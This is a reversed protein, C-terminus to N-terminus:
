RMESRYREISTFSFKKFLKAYTRDCPINYDRLLRKFTLPMDKYAEPVPTLEWPHVGLTAPLGKRNLMRIVISTILTGMHRVKFPFRIGIINGIAEPYEVMTSITDPAYIDKSSIPYPGLPAKSSGYGFLFMSFPFVSSDNTYGRKKLVDVAWSTEKTLSFKPARFSTPRTGTIKKIIRETRALEADFRKPTLNQLETHSYGHSGIEHGADFVRKVLDPHREATKGLFFFTGSNGTEELLKIITKIAKKISAYEHVGNQDIWRVYAIRDHFEEVDVTFINRAAM